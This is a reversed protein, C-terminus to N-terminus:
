QGPSTHRPVFLRGDKVVIHGDRIVLDTNALDDLNVDPKGAVVLIDALKGPEITGLKDGMDLIDAGDKTAARLVELNTYGAEVFSRMERIFSIPYLIVEHGADVGIGMKIGAAKMKRLTEMTAPDGYQGMITPCSMIGKEVMMRITEDTRPYAHEICDAGAEVAWELYHGSCHVAVKIGLAHAEEVAATIEERSFPDALKICDAGMNFQERILLRWEDVGDYTNEAIIRPKELVPYNGEVSHGGTITNTQGVAFIRPGPIRNQSVAEKLRFPVSGHAAVDRVSTVGSEIYWRLNEIAKLTLYAENSLISIGDHLPPTIETLHQHMEILGPMVTKGAVDIVQADRPWAKSGPPLIEKIKNREIVVTGSRVASGTGDFIRGGIIVLTGEPDRPGPPVPVRRPDDTTQTNKDIWRRRDQAREQSLVVGYFIFIGILCFLVPKTLSKKM